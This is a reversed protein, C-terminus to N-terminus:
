LISSNLLIDVKRQPGWGQKPPNIICCGLDNGCPLDYIVIFMVSLWIESCHGQKRPLIHRRDENTKQNLGLRLRQTPDCQKEVITQSGWGVASKIEVAYIVAVILMCWQRYLSTLPLGTQETSQSMWISIYLFWNICVCWYILAVMLHTFRSIEDVSLGNCFQM